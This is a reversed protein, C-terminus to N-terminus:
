MGLKEPYHLHQRQPGKPIIKKKSNPDLIYAPSGYNDLLSLNYLHPPKWMSESFYFLLMQEEGPSLQLLCTSSSAILLASLTNASSNSCIARSLNLRQDKWGTTELVSDKQLTLLVQCCVDLWYDRDAKVAFHLDWTQHPTLTLVCDACCGFAPCITILLM